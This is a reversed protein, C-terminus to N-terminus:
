NEIIVKGSGNNSIEGIKWSPYPLESLCKLCEQEKEKSIKLATALDTQWEQANVVSAILLMAITLIKKM